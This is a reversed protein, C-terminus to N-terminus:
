GNVSDFLVASKRLKYIYIYIGDIPLFEKKNKYAKRKFDYDILRFEISKIEKGFCILYYYNDFDFKSFIQNYKTFDEQSIYKANSILQLSSLFLEKDYVFISNALKINDSSNAFKIKNVLIAEKNNKRFIVIISILIFGLLAIFIKKM